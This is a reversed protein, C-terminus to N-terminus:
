AKVPERHGVWTFRKTVYEPNTFSANGSPNGGTVHFDSFAANQNMYIGGTLNFSVPTAVLAMEDAIKERVEPNTTYAGCSIAGHLQAMEKALAISQDTNKTKILLAIPGFLEKSFIEKKSADVEVIVPTAVRPTKFMPNEFSRSKLWVKGPLKEAEAIREVTKKNQIAGLVYPAAKPNDILSNLQAVLKEAFQDFSINGVPSNIGGEPIYFNQPATCMQGSYLNISFALNAAAKDADDVSDLIVSNVGTKETFVIKGPLAELYSGFVSNGTFDILKVSPHEALEKTIMKDYTDPALQCINPDLGNESLVKQIEAVVIAIPLISGPHPKVIVPNGTILSGYIGTVSNWTPFTSCGIVLSIGKPVARWEKNLQINYKGMPKDWLAKAPFRNLEEYGAAIAELARDAAHPGSAQFAMMFWQGTTHMTAYAIEYFRKKMGELSELLIGARDNANTKRWQTQAATAQNILTDVSYSPYLVRLPEQFYPSEEQGIWGNGGTQKLDAFQQKTRQAKFKELGDPDATEGYVAPSPMEPFAAYFTRAHLAEIAKNLTPQHKAFLSM